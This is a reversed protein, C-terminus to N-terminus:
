IDCVMGDVQLLLTQGSRGLERSVVHADPRMFLNRLKIFM